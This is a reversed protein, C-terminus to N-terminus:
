LLLACSVVGSIILLNNNITYHSSGNAFEADSAIPVNSASSSASPASSASTIATASASVSQVFTSSPIIEGATIAKIPQINISEIANNHGGVIAAAVNIVAANTCQLFAMIFLVFFNYTFNM